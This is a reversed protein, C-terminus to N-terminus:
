ESVLIRCTVAAGMTAGFGVSPFGCTFSKETNIIINKFVTVQM